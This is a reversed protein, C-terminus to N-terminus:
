VFDSGQKAFATHSFDIACAVSPEITIYGDLRQRLLEFLVGFAERAKRTLRFEQSRQIVPVNRRDVSELLVLALM